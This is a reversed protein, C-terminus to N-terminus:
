NLTPLSAALGKLLPLLQAASQYRDQPEMQTCTVVVDCLEKNIYQNVEAPNSTSLAEPEQGTLLFYLTCGFAYIDSQVVAKGRFQEPAIFSQKGVFTGTATGIFENAAGFDIVVLSGDERLVINDPTFDRHILPPEQEHLYKLISALQVAWEIVISDRQAGNQRVLQRLDQGNIYELMLYNRGQEIFHDMVQVVGSHELKLLLESEKDLMARAKVQAAETADEAVVAEKLAVLRKEDLQCLYVASLGGLAMQRVVRLSGNRLIQGPELPIFNVAAFRSRLEDEWMQTYNLSEHAQTSIARKLDQVSQDVDCGKAWMEIGLLMQEIQEAALDGLGIRLPKQEPSFLVMDQQRWDEADAPSIQVRTLDQWTLARRSNWPNLPLQLGDRDVVLCDRSLWNTLFLGVLFMALLTIGGFLVPILSGIGLGAANGGTTVMYCALFALCSGSILPAMIGWVPFTAKLMALSAKRVKTQYQVRVILETM